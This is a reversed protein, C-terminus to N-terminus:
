VPTVGFALLTRGEAVHVSERFGLGCGTALRILEDLTREQGGFCMLMFLDMSTDVGKGLLPEIVVVSGHPRAAEACRTLIASAHADDWDHLIDALVYADGGSPLPDFFSGSIAM